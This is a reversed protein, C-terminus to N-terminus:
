SHTLRVDDLRVNTPSDGSVELKGLTAEIALECTDRAGCAAEVAAYQGPAFVLQPLWGYKAHQAIPFALVNCAQADRCLAKQRTVTWRVVQGTWRRKVETWTGHVDADDLERALDQQKASTLAARTPAAAPTRRDESSCAALILLLPLLRNM